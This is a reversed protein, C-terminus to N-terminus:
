GVHAEELSCEIRDVGCCCRGPTCLRVSGGLNAELGDIAGGAGRVVSEVGLVPSARACEERSDGLRM